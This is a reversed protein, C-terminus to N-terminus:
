FNNLYYGYHGTIIILSSKKEGSMYPEPGTGGGGTGAQSNGRTLKLAAPWALLRSASPALLCLMCPSNTPLTVELRLHPSARRRNPPAALGDENTYESLHCTDQGGAAPSPPTCLALPPSRFIPLWSTSFCSRPRPAVYCRPFFDSRPPCLAHLPVTCSAASSGSFPPPPSFSAPDLYCDCLVQHASSLSGRLPHLLGVRPSCPEVHM